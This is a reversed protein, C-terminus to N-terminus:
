CLRLKLCCTQSGCSAYRSRTADLARCIWISIDWCGLMPDVKPKTRHYLTWPLCVHGWFTLSKVGINKLGCIEIASWSPRMTVMSWSNLFGCIGLWMVKSWLRVLVQDWGNDSTHYQQLRGRNDSLTDIPTQTEEDVTQEWDTRLVM